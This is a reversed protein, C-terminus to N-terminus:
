VREKILYKKVRIANYYLKLLPKRVPLLLRWLLFIFRWFVSRCDIILSGRIIEEVIGIIRSNHVLGDYCTCSDGLTYYGNHKVKCIRHLIYNDSDDCYLVIDGLKLDESRARSVVVLDLNDRIWPLMSTGSVVFKVKLGSDLTEKIYPFIDRASVEMKDSM